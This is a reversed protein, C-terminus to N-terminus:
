SPPTPPKRQGIKFTPLAEIPRQLGRRMEAAVAEGLDTTSVTRNTQHAFAILARLQSMTEAVFLIRPTPGDEDTRFVWPDSVPADRLVIMGRASHQETRSEDPADAVDAIDTISLSTLSPGTGTSRSDRLVYVTIAPGTSNM